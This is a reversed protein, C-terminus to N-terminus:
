SNSIALLRLAWSPHQQRQELVRLQLRAPTRNPNATGRPAPTLQAGAVRNRSLCLVCKHSFQEEQLSRAATYAAPFNWTIGNM